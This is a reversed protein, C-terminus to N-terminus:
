KFAENEKHYSAVLDDQHLLEVLQVGTIAGLKKLVDLLVGDRYAGRLSGLRSEPSLMAKFNRAWENARETKNM